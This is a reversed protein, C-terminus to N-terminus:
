DGAQSAARDAPITAAASGSGDGATPRTAPATAPRPRRTPNPVRVLPGSPPRFWVGTADVAVQGFDNRPTAWPRRAVEVVTWPPPEDRATAPATAAPGSTAAGGAAPSTAAPATAPRAAPRFAREGGVTTLPISPPDGPKTPVLRLESLGGEHLLWVRGDAAALVQASGGMGPLRLGAWHNRPFTAPRDDTPGDADALVFAGEGARGSTAWVPGGPGQSFSGAWVQAPMATRGVKPGRRRVWTQGTDSFTPSWAWGQRDAWLGLSFLTNPGLATLLRPYLGAARVGPIPTTGARVDAETVRWVAWYGGPRVDGDPAVQVLLARGGGVTMMGGDVSRRPPLPLKEWLDTFRDGDWHCLRRGARPSDECLWLGGAGDAALLLMHSYAGGGGSTEHAFSRAPAMKALQPGHRAILGYVDEATDWKDGDWLGAGAATAAVCGGDLPVVALVPSEGLPPAVVTPDPGDLRLLRQRGDKVQVAWANWPPALDSQRFLGSVSEFVLEAPRTSAATNRSAATTRGAIGAGAAADGPGGGAVGAVRYVMMQGGANPAADDAYVRGDPDVFYPQRVALGPPVMRELKGQRDCRFGGTVWLADDADIVSGRAPENARKDFYDTSRWQARDIPRVEFSQGAPRRPDFFVLCDQVVTGARVDTASRAHLAFRGDPMTAEPYVREFRWRGDVPSVASQEGRAAAEARAVLDQLRQRSVDRSAQGVAERLTPLAVEGLGALTQAAAERVAPDVDFFENLLRDFKEPPWLHAPWQEWLGFRNAAYVRGDPQPWVKYAMDYVGWGVAARDLRWARGDFRLLFTPGSRPQDAQPKWQQRRLPDGDPPIPVVGQGLAGAVADSLRLSSLTVLDDARAGGVGGLGVGAGASPATAPLTTSLTTPQTQPGAAPVTTAPATTPRAAAPRHLVATLGGLAVEHQSATVPYVRFFAWAGDPGLTHVGWGGAGIQEMAESASGGVFHLNGAADECAPTFWRGPDDLDRLGGAAYRYKRPEGPPNDRFFAAPADAPGPQADARRYTWTAGDYCRLLHPTHAAVAWIRHRSDVLLVEGGLVLSTQGRHAAEVSAVFARERDPDAAPRTNGDIVTSQYWVHPLTGDTTAPTPGSHRVRVTPSPVRTWGTRALAAKLGADSAAAPGTAPAAVARRVEGDVKAEGAPRV